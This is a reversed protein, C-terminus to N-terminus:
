RAVTPMYARLGTDVTVTATSRAGASDTAALTVLYRGPRLGAPLTLNPGSGDIGAPASSWRLAAGTLPGDELDTALGALSLSAGLALRIHSEGDIAVTPAKNAVPGISLRAAAAATSARAVVEVMGDGSSPLADKDLTYSAGPVDQALVVWRQGGDPSYRLSIRPSGGQGTATWGIALAGPDGPITQASASIQPAAAADLTALLSAGGWLQIRRLTPFAPVVLHFARPAIEDHSDIMMPDFAYTFLVGDEPGILELRYGGVGPGSVPAAAELSMADVIQASKGDSSITGAIVLGPGTAQLGAVPNQTERIREMIGVYTFDSIWWPDCYGMLDHATSPFFEQRYVDVGPNGNYNLGNADVYPYLPTPDGAGCGPAHFRGLNHGIEHAAVDPIDVAGYSAPWGVYGRGTAVREALVAYYIPQYPNSPQGPQELEQDRLSLIAGLLPDGLSGTYTYTPHISVEITDLPYVRRIDNLGFNNSADLTPTLAEGVGDRQYAIPVVVVQLRPSATISLSLDPGRNNTYDAEPVSHDPNVEAWLTLAGEELWADPLQFNLTHTILDRDVTLPAVIQEGENFPRLAGLAVGERAGHLTATVGQVPDGNHVGVRVRAVAPRGAVLPVANDDTQVAQAVEIGAVSLDLDADRGLNQLSFTLTTLGEVAAAITYAGPVDNAVFSRVTAIGREDTDAVAAVNGGFRGGPGSLPALFRVRHYRVPQRNANLVLVQLPAPLGTGVTLTQNDGGYVTASAAQYKNLMGFQATSSLGPVSAVVVFIGQDHNAVLTPALAVGDADTAVSGYDVFAFEGTPGGAALPPARFSVYVGAVPAGDVDRVRAKLPQPFATGVLTEHRGPNLPEITGLPRSLNLLDFWNYRSTANRTSAAVSHPGVSDGASLIPAVADGGADTLVAVKDAGGPFTARSQSALFQVYLHPVGDAHAVLRDPFPMDVATAQRYGATTILYNPARAINSLHFFVTNYQINYASVLYAGPVANATLEPATAVGYQDTVAVGVLQGGPFSAGPLGPVGPEMRVTFIVQIGPAARGADDRAYVRLPYPAPQGVLASQYDGDYISFTVYAPPQALLAGGPLLTLLLAALALLHRLHSPRARSLSADM